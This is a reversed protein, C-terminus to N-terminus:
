SPNSFYNDINDCANKPYNLKPHCIYRLYLMLFRPPFNKLYIGLQKKILNRM